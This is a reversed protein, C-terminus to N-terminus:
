KKAYRKREKADMERASIVLAVRDGKYIFFIALYRGESTRGLGLYVDAGEVHGKEVFYIRPESLLVEEAEYAHVDHKRKLKDEDLVDVWAIDM